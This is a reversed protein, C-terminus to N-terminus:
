RVFVKKGDVINIGKQLRGLRQGNLNYITKNALTAADQGITEIAVPAKTGLYRLTFNDAVIWSANTQYVQLGVSVPKVGDSEFVVTFNEPKASTEAIGISETWTNTGDTAMLSAGTIGEEPIAKQNTAYADASLAYFGAPLVSGLKQTITGDNLVTGNPRWAEIFQSVIIGAEENTYESNNQYGQNQGIKGDTDEGEAATITWFDINEFSFDRNIIISSIDLPSEETADKWGAVALVYKAYAGPLDDIYRQVQENSEFVSNLYQSIDDLMIPFADDTSVNGDNDYQDKLDVFRNELEELKTTLPTSASAYDMAAELNKIAAVMQDRSGDMAEEADTIAQDLDEIAKLVTTTNDLVDQADAILGEIEDILAQDDIANYELDFSDWVVWSNGQMEEGMVGFTLDGPETLVTSVKKYVVESAFIDDFVERAASQSNPVYIGSGENVEAWGSIPEASEKALEAVNAIATKCHGAFIFALPDAGDYSSYNTANDAFRYFASVTLTYKGAPMDKLTRSVTFPSQNWVEATGYQTKFNNASGYNWEKDPVATGQKVTEDYVYYMDYLLSIDLGDELTEGSAVADDFMKQVEEKLIVPLSAIAEEIQQTTWTGDNLADYADDNLKNLREAIAPVDEYAEIALQLDGEYFEKLKKYANISANVESMLSNIEEYAKKNAEADDSQSSVLRAADGVLDELQERLEENFTSELATNALNVIGQLALLSPDFNLEGVYRLSIGDIFFHPMSGSGANAAQFGLTFHGSTPQDLTFKIADKTWKGEPFVKTDGLYETGDDAIFGILNKAIEGKGGANYYSIELTYQGAPITVAQTYQSTASWVSIFGLVKGETKGNSLSTPPLFAGGGLWSNSGIAFVGCARANEGVNSAEWGTVPLMGFYDVKRGNSGNPDEMDYDYTCIGNDEPLPDDMTFHANTIFFDSLDVTAEENNQKQKEIAEQVMELTADPNDYVRQAAKTDAGLENGAEILALLEVKLADIQEQIVAKDDITLIKIQDYFMHYAGGSGYNGSKYGLSIVGKTEAELIFVATDGRWEQAPFQLTPSLYETGDEAVFGFYNKLMESGGAANQVTAVVMYAGAPLTVEQSYKVDAGWVAVVGLGQGTIDSTFYPAIYNKGGLGLGPDDESSEDNYAFIGAARANAGDERPTSGSNEMLKKNDSPKDATWGTVPQQGFLCQGGNGAGEDAMDYDYTNITISVPQDATFDANRLHKATVDEKVVYQTQASVSLGGMLFASLAITFIRKM